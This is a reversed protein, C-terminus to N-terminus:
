LHANSGFRKDNDETFCVCACDRRMGLPVPYCAQRTTFSRHEYSLSVLVERPRAQLRLHSAQWRYGKADQRIISRFGRQPSSLVCESAVPRCRVATQPVEVQQMVGQANALRCGPLRQQLIANCLRRIRRRQCSQLLTCPRARLSYLEHNGPTNNRHRFTTALSPLLFSVSTLVIFIYITSM